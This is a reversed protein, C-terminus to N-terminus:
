QRATEPIEGPVPCWHWVSPSPGVGPSKTRKRYVLLRDELMNLLEYVTSKSLRTMEILVDTTKPGDVLAAVLDYHAERYSDRASPPM